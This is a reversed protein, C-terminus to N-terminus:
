QAGVLVNAVTGIVGVAWGVFLLVFGYRIDFNMSSFSRQGCQGRNYVDAVLAWSVLLLLSAVLAVGSAARRLGGNGFQAVALLLAAGHVALSIANLVGAGVLRQELADCGIPYEGVAGAIKGYRRWFTWRESNLADAERDFLPTDAAIAQFVIVVLLAVLLLVAPKSANGGATKEALAQSVVVSAIVLLVLALLAMACGFLM